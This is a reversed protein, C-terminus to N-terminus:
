KKKFIEYGHITTHTEYYDNLKFFSDRIEALGLGSPTQLETKVIIWTINKKNWKEVIQTDGFLPYTAIHFQNMNTPNKRKTVAYFPDEGPLFLVTDQRPIQEEVYFFMNQMNQIQKDDATLGYLPYTIANLATSSPQFVKYYHGRSHAFLITVVLLFVVYIYISTFSINKWITTLFHFSVSLLIVFFPWLSYTSEVAHQSLYAGFCCFIIPLVTLSLPASLFGKKYYSLAFYLSSLVFITLSFTVITYNYAQESISPLFLQITPVITLILLTFSSTIKLKHIFKPNNHTKLITTSLITLLFLGLLYLNHEQLMRLVSTYQDIVINIAVQTNKIQSPFTVTQYFFSHFSDTALLYFLFLIPLILMGLLAYSFVYLQKTTRYRLLLLTQVIFWGILYLGGSNQKFFVPISALIGSILLMRPTEPMKKNYTTYALHILVFLTVFYDYIPFPYITQVTVPLLLIGFLYINNTTYPKIITYTLLISSTTVLMCIIVILVHSYGGFLLMFGALLLYTGPTLVLFFDRYPIDGQTIRYAAEIQYSYDVLLTTVQTSKWVTLIGGVCAVITIFISIIKDKYRIM